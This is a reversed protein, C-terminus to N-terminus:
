VSSRTFVVFSHTHQNESNALERDVLRRSWKQPKFMPFFADGEVDEEVETLYMRNAIPMAQAFIDAGGIVFVEDGGHERLAFSVAELLNSALFWSGPTKVESIINRRSLVINSRGPLPKGLTLLISQFTKRGMIVPHGDTVRKFYRLDSPLHWPLKGDKGIVGNRAVAAILSIKM